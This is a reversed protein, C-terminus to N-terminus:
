AEWDDKQEDTHSPAVGDRSALVSLLDSLKAQQTVGAVLGEIADPSIVDGVCKDGLARAVLNAFFGRSHSPVLLDLVQSVKTDKIFNHVLNKM